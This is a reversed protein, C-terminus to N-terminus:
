KSRIVPLPGFTASQPLTDALQVAPNSGTLKVELIIFHQWDRTMLLMIYCTDQGKGKVEEGVSNIPHFTAGAEATSLVQKV